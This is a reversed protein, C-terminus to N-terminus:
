SPTVNSVVIILIGFVSAITGAAHSISRFLDHQDRVVYAGLLAALVVVVCAGGTVYACEIVLARLVDHLEGNM